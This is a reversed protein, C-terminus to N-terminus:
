KVWKILFDKLPNLSEADLNWFRKDDFLWEGQGLHNRQKNTLGKQASIYTHLKGKRNPTVYDDGLCAEYDSYCDIFSKHLDRQMLSELLSEFDGNDADNPFLFLEADVNFSKIEQELEAKRVSFGGGNTAFDADFIIINRGGEISNEKIKNAVNVLNDKGNVCEICFLANDFNMYHLLTRVFVFESTTPKGTELFIQTM